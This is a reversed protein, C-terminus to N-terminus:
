KLRKNRGCVNCSGYIKGMLEMEKFFGKGCGFEGDCPILRKLEVYTDESDTMVEEDQSKTDQRIEYAHEMKRHSRLESELSRIVKKLRKIEGQLYRVEDHNKNKTKGM